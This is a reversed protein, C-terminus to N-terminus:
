ASSKGWDEANKEILTIVTNLNAEILDIVDELFLQGHEPHTVTHLWVDEEANKLLLYNSTRLLRFLKFSAHFPQTYYSLSEVWLDRDFEQYKVGSEAVIRRLQIYVNAEYDALHILMENINWVNKRTRFLIAEPPVSDLAKALRQYGTGFVQLKEKRTPISFM